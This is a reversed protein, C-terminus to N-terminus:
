QPMWLGEQTTLTPPRGSGSSWASMQGATSRFGVTRGEEEALAEEAVLPEAVGAARRRGRVDDVVEHARLVALNHEVGFRREALRRGLAVVAAALVNEHETEDRGLAVRDDDQEAALRTSGHGRRLVDDPVRRLPRGDDVVSGEQRPEDLHRGLLLLQARALDAEVLDVLELLHPLVVRVGVELINAAGADVLLRLWDQELRHRSLSSRAGTQALM